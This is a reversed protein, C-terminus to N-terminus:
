WVCCLAPLQRLKAVLKSNIYALSLTGLAALTRALLSYAFTLAPQKMRFLLRLSFRARLRAVEGRIACFHRCRRPINVSVYLAVDIEIKNESVRFFSM